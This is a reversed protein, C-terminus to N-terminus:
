ESMEPLDIDLFLLDISDDLFPKANEASDVAAVLELIGHQKILHQLM